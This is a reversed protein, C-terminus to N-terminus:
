ADTRVFCGLTDARSCIRNQNIIVMGWSVQEGTDPHTAQLSVFCNDDVTYTSTSKEGYSDWIVIQEDVELQITGHKQQISDWVDRYQESPYRNYVADWDINWSGILSFKCAISPASICMLMLALFVKECGGLVINLPVQPTHTKASAFLLLPCHTWQLQM